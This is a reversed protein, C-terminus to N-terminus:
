IGTYTTVIKKLKHKINIDNKESSEILENLEFIFKEEDFNIPKGIFIRKNLTEKLGEEDMLLEEYLKEGKRLGIIKIDIDTYPEYGSLKILNIALDLIKVPKGMDLVFIEGGKAFFAAQLVLAVAEPITMFYRIINKDTITVPGGQEIQKKFLPVVSGNSGLVNGFRVAAFNTLSHKSKYQVIMECIRKSAGMVSTPNVAKDTSILIFKEIKYKDSSNVVNLTGLCNNKIAENPSEEMLPVHKHAAAHFVIHPRYENFINDIREKDRVSSILTILNLNIFNKKLDNQLDYISNEYIDLIILKKPKHIAVQRAIESGISGGAGTVLIIKNEVFSLIEDANINIPERMLLDEIDVDRLKNISVEGNMLQFIGPLVKIKCNTKSCIEIIERRDKSNATPIAIYIEDINLEKSIDIINNRNGVIKVGNLNKGQKYTSDDIFCVVKTKTFKSTRIEKLLLSGAEGAGVIMVRSEIKDFSKIILKYIRYSFRLIMEFAYLSFFCIIYFSRPLSLKTFNVIIYYSIVSFFCALFIIIAERISAVSWMTTYMRFIIFILITILVFFLALKLYRDFYLLFLNNANFEFRILLSIIGSFFIAFIDIIMLLIVRVIKNHLIQELINKFQM